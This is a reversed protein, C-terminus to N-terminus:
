PEVWAEDKHDINFYRNDGDLEFVGEDDMNYGISEPKDSSAHTDVWLVGARGSHRAHLATRLIQGTDFGAAEGRELDIRPPDLNFGENGYANESRASRGNRPENEQYPQRKLVPFTAATGMSDGIAVCEAPSKVRALRVPWNKFSRPQNSNFLRSNGLFQYNYGYSGNREDRWDPTESCYYAPSAYNQRDGPQDFRDFMTRSALPEEFPPIGVENGIMALFSPRYKVGGLVKNRVQDDNIQPMRGPAMVDQYTNAYLVLGQGLTKLRSLCVASKASMRAKTLAPVLISILLAIISIVVLLEILTFCRCLRRAFRSM